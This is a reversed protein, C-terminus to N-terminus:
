KKVVRLNYLTSVEENTLAKKLIIINDIGGGYFYRFRGTLGDAIERGIFLPYNYGIDLASETNVLEGDLYLKITNNEKNIVAAVFYWDNLISTTEYKCTIQSNGNNLVMGLNTYSELDGTIPYNHHREINLMMGTLTNEANRSQGIIPYSASTIYNGNLDKGYYYTTDSYFFWACLSFSKGEFNFRGDNVLELYVSDTLNFGTTLSGFKDLLHTITPNQSEDITSDTFTYYALLNEDRFEDPIEKLHLTDIIGPNDSKTLNNGFNISSPVPIFLGLKGEKPNSINKECGTTIVFSLALFVIVKRM